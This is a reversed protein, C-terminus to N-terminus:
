ANNKFIRCLPLNPFQGYADSKAYEVIREKIQEPTGNVVSDGYISVKMTESTTPHKHKNTFVKKVKSEDPKKLEQFFDDLIKMRKRQKLDKIAEEM